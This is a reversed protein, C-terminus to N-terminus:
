ERQIPITQGCLNLYYKGGVEDIRELIHYSPSSKFKAILRGNEVRCYLAKNKYYLTYIDLLEAKGNTLNLKIKEYQLFGSFVVGTIFVPADDVTVPYTYSGYHIVYTGDRTINISRNFFDIIKQNKFPQGNHHWVGNKDLRIDDTLEKKEFPEKLEEPLEPYEDDM